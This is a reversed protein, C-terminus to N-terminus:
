STKLIMQVEAHRCTEEHGLAFTYSPALKISAGRKVLASTGPEFARLDDLGDNVLYWQGRNDLDFHAVMVPPVGPDPSRVSEVHHLFLPRKAYIAISWDDNSYTGRISGPRRLRFIPMGSPHKYPIGCWPCKFNNTDPVVYAKMECAPNQCPIIRDAMRILAAEWEAASPRKIPNHLGDIFAKQFLKNVLPTFMESTFPLKPPRNSRDKPNEIFLAREGYALQEDREPDNDHVKPGQLPHRLLFTWYLLVALAHKDTDVKPTGKGSVIEPAMCQPTGLVSPPQIGPVVLGDCDILTTQATRINVLFNKPSLDSHCLGRQHMWRIIRSMRFGISLRMNWTGREVPPLTKWFAPRVYHDLPKCDKVTPMRIGLRPNVVIGDPWGFYSARAPDDKVLNYRTVINQITNHRNQDKAFYLKIVYNKGEGWYLEGEAGANFPSDECRIRTGDSLVVEM